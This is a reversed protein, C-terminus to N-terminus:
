EGEANSRERGGERIGGAKMISGRGYRNKLDDIAKYLETKKRINEFLNTQVAEGTLETLRV